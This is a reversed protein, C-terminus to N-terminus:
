LANLMGRAKEEDEKEHIEMWGKYVEQGYVTFGRDIIEQIIDTIAAQDFSESEHFKEEHNESCDDYVKELIEAGRESFYAIGIFEYDSRDKNIKKGIGTVEVLSTPQLERHYPSRKKKGVVLDLDKELDEKHYRYSEDLLLVIDEKSEVLNQFIEQNFLIDSFVLIFGDKMSKRACFLSHLSHKEEYEPNEYYNLSYKKSDFKESKYGRVVSVNRIGTKRIIELQRKIIPKGNIEILAKPMGKFTLDKGAAPIIVSLKQTKSYKRDQTKIWEFGVDEFIDLVPSCIPDAEFSRDNLLITESVERMAKHASRLLHNAHIIINFGHEVLEQDKILNYTTPVAVLPVRKGIDRCKEEYLDSFELVERPDSKKSHIMIGDAGAQIYSEARTLADEMGVGAILSEIRAIIMFEDHIKVDEGRKIKTSFESVDELSQRASSDLSCRKPFTKDEIVVGSVGLKELRSVLHEFEASTRGTDGDVIMPKETVDFIQEITRLRSDFGIIGADPLGRSGADTFSSEWFGDFEIIGGNKEVKVNGGILGSLGNHAEILRVFGNGDLKSKLSSLRESPQIRSYVGM